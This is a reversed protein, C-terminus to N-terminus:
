EARPPLSPPKLPGTHTTPVYWEQRDALYVTRRLLAKVQAQYITVGQCVFSVTFDRDSLLRLTKIDEGTILVGNRTRNGLKVENARRCTIRIIPITTM